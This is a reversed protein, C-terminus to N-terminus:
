AGLWSRCRAVQRCRWSSARRAAAFASVAPMDLVWPRCRAWAGLYPLAYAAIQGHAGRTSWGPGPPCDRPRVRDSWGADIEHVGVLELRSERRAVDVLTGALDPEGALTAGLVTAARVDLLLRVILALM